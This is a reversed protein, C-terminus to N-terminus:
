RLLEQHETSRSCSQILSFLIKSASAEAFAKACKISLRVSLELVQCAKLLEPTNRSSKIIKLAKLTRNGLTLEPRFNNSNSLENLNKLIKKIEESSQSRVQKSKYVAQLRKFGKVLKRARILPRYARVWRGLVSASKDKKRKYSAWKMFKSLCFSAKHEKQEIERMNKLAAMGKAEIAAIKKSVYFRYMKQVTLIKGKLNIYKKVQVKMRFIAQVKILQKIALDCRKKSLIRNCWQQIIKLSKMKLIFKQRGLFMRFFTQLKSCKSIKLNLAEIEQREIEAQKLIELREIERMTKINHRHECRKKFLLRKFFCKIKLSANQCLRQREEARQFALEEAAQAEEIARLKEELLVRAEYEKNAKEEAEQRAKIEIEIATQSKLREQEAAVELEKEFAKLIEKEKTILENAVLIEKDLRIVAENRIQDIAQLNASEIEALKNEIAKRANAEEELKNQLELKENKERITEIDSLRQIELARLKAQEVELLVIKEKEAFSAETSLLQNLLKQSNEEVILITEEMAKAKVFEIEKQATEEVKKIMAEVRAEAEKEADKKAIEILFSVKDDILFENTLNTRDSVESFLDSNRRDVTDSCTYSSMDTESYSTSPTDLGIPENNRINFDTLPISSFSSKPIGYKSIRVIFADEKVKLLEKENRDIDTKSKLFNLFQCRTQYSFIKNAIIQAANQKSMKISISVDCNGVGSYKVKNANKSTKVKITVNKQLYFGKSFLISKFFRQIKFAAKIEKSTEVMRPFLHGLFAVITKEEPLNQTDYNSLINPIGGIKLCATKILSFNKRENNIASKMENKPVSISSEIYNDLQTSCSLCDIFNKSTKKILNLPVLSPHYHHILLCLARGDAISTTLDYVPVGFPESISNCWSILLKILKNVQNEENLDGILSQSDSDVVNPSFRKPNLVALDDFEEDSFNLFQRNNKIRKIEQDITRMDILKRLDFYFMISWLFQLTKDRDGDVVHKATCNTEIGLEKLFKFSLGVNHFKQLRSVAPVRLLNSLDFKKTLLEILRAIRVGDRLDVALNKVTYDFEDVYSQSFSVNYQMTSLHRMIDGEGRLFEKCFTILFEKSSKVESTKEFLIPVDMIQKTKCYDLVFILSFIKRLIHKHMETRWSDENINLGGRKKKSNSTESNSIFNEM